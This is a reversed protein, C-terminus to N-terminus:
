VSFSGAIDDDTVFYVTEEEINYYFDVSSLDEIRKGFDNKWCDYFRNIIDSESVNIGEYQIILKSWDKVEQSESSLRKETENEGDNDGAICESNELKERTAGVIKESETALNGEDDLIPTDLISKIAGAMAMAEAITNKEDESFERFDTGKGKIIEGMEYVLPEFVANLSLLFRNFM